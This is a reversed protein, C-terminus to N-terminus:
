AQVESGALAAAEASQRPVADNRRQKALAARIIEECVSAHYTLGMRETEARSCNWKKCAGECAAVLDAHANYLANYEERLARYERKAIVHDPWLWSRATHRRTM